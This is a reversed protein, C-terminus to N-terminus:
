CIAIPFDQNRGGNSDPEFGGHTRGVKWRGLPVLNNFAPSKASMEIQHASYTM